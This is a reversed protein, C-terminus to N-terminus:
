GRWRKVARVATSRARNRLGRGSDLVQNIWTNDLDKHLSNRAQLWSDARAHGGDSTYVRSAGAKRLHRLVHRDYSGYPIAVTSVPEGVLATLVRSADSFEQEAESETVRRWDRHSWGHSGVSMGNDLLTRVGVKDVRGPHGFLGACVFFSATLGREVLRSLAIDLDSANGDDFTLQVDSRGVVADLVREFQDVTVWIRDEGPELERNPRGIGHVTLNVVARTAESVSLDKVALFAM